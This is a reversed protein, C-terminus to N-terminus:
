LGSRSWDDAGKLCKSQSSAEANSLGSLSGRYGVAGEAQTDGIEARVRLGETGGQNRGQLDVRVIGLEDRQCVRTVLLVPSVDDHDGRVVLDHIALSHWLDLHALEHREARRGRKTSVCRLGASVLHKCRSSPTMM